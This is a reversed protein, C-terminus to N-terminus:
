KEEDEGVPVSDYCYFLFCVVVFCTFLLHCCPRWLWACGFRGPRSLNLSLASGTGAVYCVWFWNRLVSLFVKRDECFSLIHIFFICVSIRSQVPIKVVSQFSLACRAVFFVNRKSNPSYRQLATDYREFPCFTYIRWGRGSYSFRYICYIHLCLWSFLNIWFRMFLHMFLCM